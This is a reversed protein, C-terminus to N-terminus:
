KASEDNAFRGFGTSWGILCDATILVELLTFGSQRYRTAMIFLEAKLM